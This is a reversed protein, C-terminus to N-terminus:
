KYLIKKSCIRYYGKRRNENERFLELGLENAVRSRINNFTDYFKADHPNEPNNGENESLIYHTLEHLIVLVFRELTYNINSNMIVVYRKGGGVKKYTECKGLVISKGNQHYFSTKPMTFDTTNGLKLRRIFIMMWFSCSIKLFESWSVGLHNKYIQTLYKNKHEEFDYYLYKLEEEKVYILANSPQFQYFASRM